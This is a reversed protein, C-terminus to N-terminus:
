NREARPGERKQARVVREVGSLDLGVKPRLFGAQKSVVESVSTAQGDAVELLLWGGPRLYLAAQAIIARHFNMGDPGGRLSVLPEYDRVEEALREIQPDPIYPPNSVILSFPGGGDSSRLPAFLDAAVFAIHDLVGSARANKEALSLARRSVDTAIIFLDSRERALAVAIAGSGTGLELVLHPGPGHPDAAASLAEEVLLETEPRPILVNRDVFLDLSWFEKHGTIYAVPERAARRELLAQFDAPENDTLEDRLRRYLEERSVKLSHVLLLEADLRAEPIGKRNLFEVGKNLIERVTMAGTLKCGM